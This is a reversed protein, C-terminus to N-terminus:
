EKGCYLVFVSAKEGSVTVTVRSVLSGSEEQENWEFCVEEGPAITRMFKARKLQELRLAQGAREELATQAALIQVFAPLVPYGPFHGQFGSFDPAFCYSRAYGDTGGRLEGVASCRIEKKLRSM